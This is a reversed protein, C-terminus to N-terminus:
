QDSLGHHPLELRQQHIDTLLTRHLFDQYYPLTLTSDSLCFETTRWMSKPSIGMKLTILMM